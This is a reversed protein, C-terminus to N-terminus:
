TNLVHSLLIPFESFCNKKKEKKSSIGTSNNQDVDEGREFGRKYVIVIM